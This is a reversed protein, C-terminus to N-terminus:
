SRWAGSCCRSVCATELAAADLSPIVVPRQSRMRLFYTFPVRSAGGFVFCLAEGVAFQVEEAKSGSLAFLGDTAATLTADDAQSAALHGVAAVARLVM